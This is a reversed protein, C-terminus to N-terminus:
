LRNSVFEMLVDAEQQERENSLAPETGCEECQPTELSMACVCVCLVCFPLPPLSFVGSM